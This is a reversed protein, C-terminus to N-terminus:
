RASLPPFFADPYHAIEYKRQSGVVAIVDFQPRHPIEMSRLYTDAAKCLRRMKDPTIADLPDKFHTTRTKVEVFIISTGKMAIIDIETHGVRVNRGAIAYGRSALWDAAVNEGWSGIDNHFAM